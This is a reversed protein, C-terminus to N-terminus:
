AHHSGFSINSLDNNGSAVVLPVTMVMYILLCFCLLLGTVRTHICPHMMRCTIGFHYFFIWTEKLNHLTQFNGQSNVLGWYAKYSNSSCCTRILQPSINSILIRWKVCLSQPFSCFRNCRASVRWVLIHQVRWHQEGENANLSCANFCIEM